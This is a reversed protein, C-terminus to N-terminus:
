WKGQRPTIVLHVIEEQHCTNTSGGAGAERHINTRYNVAVDSINGNPPDLSPISSIGRGTETWNRENEHLKRCFNALLLLNTGEVTTTTPSGEPFCRWNDKMM